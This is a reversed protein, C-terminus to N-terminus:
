REEMAVRLVRTTTTTTFEAALDPREKKLRAIDVRGSSQAKWTARGGDLQIGEADGIAAQVLASLRAEEAEAGKRDEKADALARVLEAEVATAARLPSRHVPHRALLWRRADDSGDIDPPLDGVVHRLWWDEARDLAEALTEPDPTLAYVRFEERLALYAGLRVGLGALTAQVQAQLWYHAPVDDPGDGWEAAQRATKVEACLWAGAVLVYGDPHASVHPWRGGPHVVAPGDFPEGLVVAAAGVEDGLWRLLGAELYHGGRTVPTEAASELGGCKAAWVGFPTRWPSLGLVAAVESAGLRASRPEAALTLTPGTM